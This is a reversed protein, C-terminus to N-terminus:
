ASYSRIFVFCEGDRWVSRGRSVEVVAVFGWGVDERRERIRWRWRWCSGVVVKVVRGVCFLWGLLLM